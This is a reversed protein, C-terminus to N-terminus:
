DIAVTLLMRYLKKNQTWSFYDWVPKSCFSPLHTIEMTPIYSNLDILEFTVLCFSSYIFM